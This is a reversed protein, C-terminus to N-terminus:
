SELLARLEDLTLWPKTVHVMRHCNSCLVALDKLRTKQGVALSSVPAKHHCEIFGEGRAGYVKDFRFGCGECALCGTEKLVAAKKARVIKRDRERSTHIRTVLRGESAESVEDPAERDTEKTPAQLISRITDAASQLRKPAGSFEKWVALDGAGANPLGGSHEPDLARFNMLKMYVGNLSRFSEFDGTHLRRAVAEVDSQLTSVVESSQSPISARHTMYADLALILEDRSWSPNQAM